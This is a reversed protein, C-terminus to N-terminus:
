EGKRRRTALAGESLLFRLVQERTELQTSGIREIEEESVKRNRLVSSIAKTTVRVHVREKTAGLLTLLHKPIAIRGSADIAAEFEVSHRHADM